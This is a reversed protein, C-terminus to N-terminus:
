QKMDYPLTLLSNNGQSTRIRLYIDIRGRSNEQDYKFDVMEVAVLREVDAPLTRETDRIYKVCRHLDEQVELQMKPLYASSVMTYTPLYSGYSPNLADSGRSTLMFKVVKNALTEMRGTPNDALPTPRMFESSGDTGSFIHTTTYLRIDRDYAAM